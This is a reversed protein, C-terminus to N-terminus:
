GRGELTAEVFAVKDRYVKTLTDGKAADVPRTAGVFSGGVEAVIARAEADDCNVWVAVRGRSAGKSSAQGWGRADIVKTMSGFNPRTVDAGGPGAGKAVVLPVILVHIAM